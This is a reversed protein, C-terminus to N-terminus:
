SPTRPCTAIAPRYTFYVKRRYLNRREAPVAAVEYRCPVGPLKTRISEARRSALTTDTEAPDMYGTLLYGNFFRREADSAAPRRDRAQIYHSNVDVLYRGLNTDVVDSQWRFCVPLPLGANDESIVRFSGIIWDRYTAALEPGQAIELIAGNYLQDCGRLTAPPREPVPSRDSVVTELQGFLARLVSRVAGREGQAAAPAAGGFLLAAAAVGAALSRVAPASM